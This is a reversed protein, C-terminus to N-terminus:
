LSLKKLKFVDYTETLYDILKEGSKAELFKFVDYTETLNVSSRASSLGQGANLYMM